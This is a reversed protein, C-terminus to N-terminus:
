KDTSTELHMKKAQAVLDLWHSPDVEGAVPGDLPDAMTIVRRKDPRLKRIMDGLGFASEQLQDRTGDAIMRELGLKLRQALENANKKVYFYDAAQYKLLLTEEIMLNSTGSMELEYIPEHFARPYYDIRGKSLMPYFSDTADATVFPLTNIKLVDTSQWDRGTGAVYKRLDELSKVQAFKDKDSKRIVLVRYGHLGRYVPIKISQMREERVKTRVRWIIDLQGSEIRIINRDGGGSSAFKIQCPGYEKETKRLAMDILIVPYHNRPDSQPADPLKLVCEKVPHQISGLESQAVACPAWSALAILPPLPVMRWSFHPTTLSRLAEFTSLM